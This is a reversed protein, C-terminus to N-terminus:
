IGMYLLSAIKDNNLKDEFDLLDEFTFSKINREDDTLYRDIKSVEGAIVCGKESILSLYSGNKLYIVYWENDRVIYYNDKSDVIASIYEGNSTKLIRINNKNINEFFEGNIKVDGYNINYTTHSKNRDNCSMVCSTTGIAILLVAAAATSGITVAVTETKIQQKEKISLKNKNKM